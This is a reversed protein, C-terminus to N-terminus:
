QYRSSKFIFILLNVLEMAQPVLLNFEASMLARRYDRDQASDVGNRNNIVAKKIDM